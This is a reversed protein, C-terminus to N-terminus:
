DEDREFEEIEEKTMPRVYIFGDKEEARYHYDYEMAYIFEEKSLVGSWWERIGIIVKDATMVKDEDYYECCDFIADRFEKGGMTRDNECEYIRDYVIVAEYEKYNEM